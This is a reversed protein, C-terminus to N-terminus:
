MPRRGLLRKGESKGVSVNHIGKMRRSKIVRIINSSSYNDSREANHIQRWKETLEDKTTGFIGKLVRSQVGEFQQNWLMNQEKQDSYEEKHM